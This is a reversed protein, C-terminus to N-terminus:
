RLSDVCLHSWFSTIVRVKCPSVSAQLPFSLCALMSQYTYHDMIFYLVNNNNNNDEDDNNVSGVISQDLFYYNAISHFRTKFCLHFWDPSSIFCVDKLFYQLSFSPKRCAKKIRPVLTCYHLGLVGLSEAWISSANKTHVSVLFQYILSFCLIYSPTLLQPSFGLLFPSFPTLHDPFTERLLRWVKDGQLLPCAIHASVPPSSEPAHWLGLASAWSKGVPKVDQPRGLPPVVNSSHESSASHLVSFFYNVWQFAQVMGPFNM